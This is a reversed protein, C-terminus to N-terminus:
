LKAWDRFMQQATPSSKKWLKRLARFDKNDIDAQEEQAAKARMQDIPTIARRVAARTPEQGREIAENVVKAVIGREQEEADRIKRAEHIAKHSLGIDAVSVKKQDPLLNQDSRTTVEGRDQAADYEDALRHKAQSEILLADGQVRHAAAVLTDHAGKAQAMRAAKKAVDYVLGAMDRAELVEASTRACSLANAARDVLAPLSGVDVAMVENM